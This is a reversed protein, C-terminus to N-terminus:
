RPSSRACTTATGTLGREDVTSRPNVPVAVVQARLLGLYTTVFELRNGVALLVRQGAVVGAAGLGTAIRGVEDELEAWTLSRGGAEVIALADPREDAAEAVLDALDHEAPM